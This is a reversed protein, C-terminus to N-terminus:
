ERAIFMARLEDWGLDWLDQFNEPAPFELDRGNHSVVSQLSLDSGYRDKLHGLSRPLSKLGGGQKQTRALLSIVIADVLTTKGSENPGFVLNFAPGFEILRGRFLGFNGLFLSKLNM